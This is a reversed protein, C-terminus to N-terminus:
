EEVEVIMYVSAAFNHPISVGVATRTHRGIEGFVEVVFDSAGNMADAQETNDPTTNVFGHVAVINKIKDLSCIAKIAALCNVVCLKTATKSEELTIDKGLKGKYSKGNYVPVQGATHILNGVQKAPVYNAIPKPMEPLVIGLQNLRKEINSMTNKILNHMIHRPDLICPSKAPFRVRIAMWFVM